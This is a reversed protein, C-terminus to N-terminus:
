VFTNFIIIKSTGPLDRVGCGHLFRSFLASDDKCLNDRSGAGCVSVIAPETIIIAFVVTSQEGSEDMGVDRM